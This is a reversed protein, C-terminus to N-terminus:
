EPRPHIAGQENVFMQELSYGTNEQPPPFPPPRRGVRVHPRVADHAEDGQRAEGRRLKRLTLHQAGLGSAQPRIQEGQM